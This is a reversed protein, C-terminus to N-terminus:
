ATALVERIKDLAVRCGSNLMGFNLTSQGILGLFVDASGMRYLALFRKGGKITAESCGDSQLARMAEDSLRVLEHMLERTRPPADDQYLHALVKGDAQLVAIAELGPLRDHLDQLVNRLIETRDDSAM